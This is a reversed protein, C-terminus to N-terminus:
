PVRARVSGSRGPSPARLPDHPALGLVLAPGPDIRVDPDDPDAGDAAHHQTVQAPGPDVTHTELPERGTMVDAGDPTVGTEEPHGVGLPRTEDRPQPAGQLQPVLELGLRRGVHQGPASPQRDPEGVVGVEGRRALGPDLDLGQGVLRQALAIRLM